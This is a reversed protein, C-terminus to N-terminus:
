ASDPEPNDAPTHDSCRPYATSSAKCGRRYGCCDSDSNPKGYHKPRSEQPFWPTKATFTLLMAFQAPPQTISRTLFRLALEPLDQGSEDEDDVIEVENMSVVQDMPFHFNNLLSVLTRVYVREHENKSEALRLYKRVLAYYASWVLRKSMRGTTMIAVDIFHHDTTPFSASHRDALDPILRILVGVIKVLGVKVKDPV